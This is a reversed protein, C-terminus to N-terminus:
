RTLMFGFPTDAAAPQALSLTFFGEGRAAIWWRAGPDGYLTVHPLADPAMGPAPVHVLTAGRAVTGSGTGIIAAAGAAHAAPEGAWTASAAGSSAGAMPAGELKVFALVMGEGAASTASRAGSGVGDWAELAIAVVPGSGTFRAAVGPAAGMGLRDGPAIAGGSLDVQVPVRGALAVLVRDTRAAEVTSWQGRLVAAVDPQGSREAAQAAALLEPMRGEVEGAGLTIGPRSSIVGLLAEASGRRALQVHAPHAPDIAVLAGAQAALQADSTPYYEALDAGGSAYAGDIFFNGAQTLRATLNGNGLPGRYWTFWPDGSNGDADSVFAMDYNSEIRLDGAIGGESKILGIGTYLAGTAAVDGAVPVSALAGSGGLARVSGAGATLGDQATLAGQAVIDGAATIGVGGDTVDLNSV